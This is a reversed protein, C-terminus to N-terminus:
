EAPPAAPADPPAAARAKELRNLYALEELLLTRLEGPALKQEIASIGAEIVELDQLLIEDIKKVDTEAALLDRIRFRQSRLMDRTRRAASATAIKFESVRAVMGALEAAEMGKIRAVARERQARAETYGSGGGDPGSGTGAGAPQPPLKPDRRLKPQGSVANRPKTEDTNAKWLKVALDADISGDPHVAAKIRGTRIAKQVAGHTVKMREALARQSVGQRAPM